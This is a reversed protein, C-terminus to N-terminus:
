IVHKLYPQEMHTEYKQSLAYIIAKQYGMWLQPSNLLKSQDLSLMLYM